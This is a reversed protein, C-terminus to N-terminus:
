NKRVFYVVGGLVAIGLVIYLIMNKKPAAGATQVGGDGTSMPELGQALRSSPSMPPSDLIPLSTGSSASSGSTGTNGSSTGSPTNTPIIDKV